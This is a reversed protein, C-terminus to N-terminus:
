YAGLEFDVAHLAQESSGLTSDERTKYWIVPVILNSLIDSTLREQDQLICPMGYYMYIYV